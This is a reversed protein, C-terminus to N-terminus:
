VTVTIGDTNGASGLAMNSNLWFTIRQFGKATTPNTTAGWEAYDSDSTLAVGAVSIYSTGRTSSVNRAWVTIAAGRTASGEWGQNPGAPASLYLLQPATSQALAVPVGYLGIFLLCTPLRKM